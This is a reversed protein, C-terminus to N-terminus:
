TEDYLDAVKTERSVLAFGERDISFEAARPRGDHIFTRHAQYPHSRVPLGPPPDYQHSFPKSGDPVIFNLEAEVGASRSKGGLDFPHRETRQQLMPCEGPASSM